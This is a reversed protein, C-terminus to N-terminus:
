RFHVASWVLGGVVGLILALNWARRLRKGWPAPNDNASSPRRWM